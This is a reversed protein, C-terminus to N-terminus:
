GGGGNKGEVNESIAALATELERRVPSGSETSGNM